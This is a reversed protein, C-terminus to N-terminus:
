RWMRVGWKGVKPLWWVLHKTLFCRELAAKVSCQASCWDATSKLRVVVRRRQALKAKNVADRWRAATMVSCRRAGRKCYGIRRVFVFM